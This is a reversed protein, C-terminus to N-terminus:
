ANTKWHVLYGLRDSPITVTVSGPITFPDAELKAVTAQAVESSAFSVTKSKTFASEVNRRKPAPRPM